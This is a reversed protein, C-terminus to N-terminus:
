SWHVIFIIFITLWYIFLWRQMKTFDKVKNMVSLELIKLFDIIWIPFCFTSKSAWIHVNLRKIFNEIMDNVLHVYNNAKPTVLSIKQMQCLHYDLKEKTQHWQNHLMKTELQILQCIKPGDFIGIKKREKSLGPFACFISFVHEM